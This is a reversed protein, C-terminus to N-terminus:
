AARKEKRSAALIRGMQERESRRMLKRVKPFVLNEEESLHHEVTEMLDQLRPLISEDTKSVGSIERLLEKMEKHEDISVTIQDRLEGFKEFAPYFITEELHSHTEILDKISLYLQKIKSRDTTQDLDSFLRKLKDHDEKLLDLVDM